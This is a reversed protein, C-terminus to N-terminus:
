TEGKRTGFPVYPQKEVQELTGWECEITHLKKRVDEFEIRVVAGPKLRKIQEPTAVCALYGTAMDGVDLPTQLKKLMSEDPLFRMQQENNPGSCMTVPRTPIAIILSEPDDGIHVRWSNYVVASKMTGINSLTFVIVIAFDGQGEDPGNITGHIEGSFVPGEVPAAELESIRELLATYKLWFVAIFYLVVTLGVLWPWHEQVFQPASITGVIWLLSELATIKLSQGGFRHWSHSKAAGAM